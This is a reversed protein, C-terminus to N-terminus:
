QGEAREMAGRIGLQIVHTFPGPAPSAELAKRKAASSTVPLRDESVLSGEMVSFLSRVGGGSSWPSPASSRSNVSSRASVSTARACSTKSVVTSARCFATRVRFDIGSVPSRSTTFSTLAIFEARIIAM